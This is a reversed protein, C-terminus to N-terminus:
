LPATSKITHSQFIPSTEEKGAGQGDEGKDEIM